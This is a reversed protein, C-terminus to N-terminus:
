SGIREVAASVKASLGEEATLPASGANAAAAQQGEDSTVYKFYASVLKATEADQYKECAALYSVLILPYAGAAETTRNLEYVVDGEGRGAELTSEAVAKAAGDASAKVWDTGVKISAWSLAGAQGADVYGIAGKGATLAAVMGQTKEAGEGGAEPWEETEGATWTDSATAALYDTFNGTTGSKDSRHVPSIKLDPLTVGPNDAAIAPDNWNTIKGTFIGAIVKPALNLSQVGELNFAVVIPSIYVPVEVLPSDAACSAQGGKAEDAKFPADTGVFGLGGATFQSRGDGSGVPDYNVTVQSQLAVFGGKWAEQAASQSSAGAGNLEGSLQEGTTGADNSAGTNPNANADENAACGALLAVVAGAATAAVAVTKMKGLRM